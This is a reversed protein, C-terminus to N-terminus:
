DIELVFLWSSSGSLSNTLMTSSGLGSSFCSGASDGFSSYFIRSDMGDLKFSDLTEDMLWTVSASISFFNWCISGSRMPFTLSSSKFSDITLLWILGFDSTLGGFYSILSSLIMWLFTKQSSHPASPISPILYLHAIQGSKSRQSFHSALDVCSWGNRFILCGLCVGRWSKATM